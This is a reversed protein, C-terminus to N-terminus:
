KKEDTTEPEQEDNERQIAGKQNGESDDSSPLVDERTDANGLEGADEKAEMWEDKNMIQDEDKEDAKSDDTKSKVVMDNKNKDNGSNDGDINIDMRDLASIVDGADKGMFPVDAIGKEKQENFVDDMELKEDSFPSTGDVQKNDLEGGQVLDDDRNNSSGLDNSDVTQPVEEGENNVDVVRLEESDIDMDGSGVARPTPPASAIMHSSELISKLSDWNAITRSEKLREFAWASFEERTLTEDIDKGVKMFAHNALNESIQYLEDSTWGSHKWLRCLGASTSQVAMRIDEHYIEETGACKYLGFILDLRTKWNADCLLVMTSIFEYTRCLGKESYINMISEVFSEDVGPTDIANKIFFTLDVKDLVPPIYQECFVRVLSSANDGSIGRLIDRKDVKGEPKGIGKRSPSFAEKSNPHSSGESDGEVTTSSYTM